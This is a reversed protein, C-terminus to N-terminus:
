VFEKNIIEALEKSNELIFMHGNRSVTYVKFRDPEKEALRRSGAQDMWDVEGFCIVYNLKSQSLMKDELPNAGKPFPNKFIYWMCKDLDSPYEMAIESLKAM